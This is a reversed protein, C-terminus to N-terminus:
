ARPRRRTLIYGSVADRFASEDDFVRDMNHTELDKSDGRISWRRDRKELEIEGEPGVFRARGEGRDATYVFPPATAPRSDVLALAYGRLAMMCAVEGLWFSEPSDLLFSVRLDRIQRQASDYEGAIIVDRYDSQALQIYDRLLDLSGRSALVICRAVRGTDGSERLLDLAQESERGFDCRVREVIDPELAM